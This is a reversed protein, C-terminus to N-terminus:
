FPQLSGKLCLATVNGRAARSHPTVNVKGVHRAQPCCVAGWKQLAMEKRQKTWALETETGGVMRERIRVSLALLWRPLACTGSRGKGKHHKKKRRGMTEQQTKQNKWEMRGTSCRGEKVSGREKGMPLTRPWPAKPFTTSADANPILLLLLQSVTATLISFPIHVTFCFICDTHVSFFSADALSHGGQLHRDKEYPM